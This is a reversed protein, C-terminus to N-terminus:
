EATGKTCSRWAEIALEVAIGVFGPLSLVAFAANGWDGHIGGNSNFRSEGHQLQDVVYATVETHTLGLWETCTLLLLVGMCLSGLQAAYRREFRCGRVPTGRMSYISQEATQDTVRDTVYAEQRLRKYWM